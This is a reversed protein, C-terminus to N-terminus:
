RYLEELAGVNHLCHKKLSTIGGESGVASSTASTCHTCLLAQIWPISQRAASPNRHHETSPTLTRGQLPLATSRIGFHACSKEQIM